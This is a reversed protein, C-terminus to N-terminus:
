QGSQLVGVIGGLMRYNASTRVPYGTAPSQGISTWLRYQSSSMFTGGATLSRGSPLPVFTHQMFPPPPPPPVAAVSGADPKSVREGVMNMGTGVMNMATSADSTAADASSTAAASSSSRCLAELCTFGSPCDANTTCVFVGDPLKASCASMSLTLWGMTSLWMRGVGRKFGLQQRFM